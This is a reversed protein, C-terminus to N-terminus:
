WWPPSCLSSATTCYTASCYALRRCDRPARYARLGATEELFVTRYLRTARGSWRACRHGGAAGRVALRGMRLRVRLDAGFAVDTILWARRHYLVALLHVVAVVCLVVGLFDVYTARFFALILAATLYSMLGILLSPVRSRSARGMRLKIERAIDRGDDNRGLDFWFM